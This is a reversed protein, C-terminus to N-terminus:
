GIADKYPRGQEAYIGLITDFPVVGVRAAWAQWQESLDKVVDPHQDAVNRLEAPDSALDYLEWAYAHDYVPKARVAEDGTGAWYRKVEPHARLVKWRGRRAAANGTHEWYLTADPVAQGRLAPLLSRGEQPLITRGEYRAPYTAGTAELVTPLVDVLQFPQRVISGNRLGGRPWHVIFPTAIGGQHTWQKYYRFPTNSLNAWARGYSAYTDEGGPVIAPENGFRVDRGDRTRLRLIDTREKFRQLAVLPLAEDSAGNDSLFLLLTDDLEGTEELADLIRGVGQDMADVQAAYAEMRRAQWAKHQAETWAPQTPDRASLETAEDIIGAERQRELRRERLVDWGEDFAGRYKAIDAERAHLPWHPATFAVYLFFPQGAPRADRERVFAAAEEAIAHTYYFDVRQAEHEANEEGRMLTGPDFFSGCGTLTGFFRDFGRRTPWAANPTRIEAALHWKGSLCTAYGAAKLVEALTVCRDNITGAYGRPRTDNTLIGIGTQHPHLGTLLSARSPSCRATNYFQALRVGSAGLRDLNPTRIEGGYCGIDSFGMDDVLVLVVNPRKMAEESGKIRDDRRGAGAAGPGRLADRCRVAPSRGRDADAPTAAAGFRECARGEASETRDDVVGVGREVNM